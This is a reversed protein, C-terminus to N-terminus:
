GVRRSWVPEVLAWERAWAADVRAATARRVATWAANLLAWSLAVATLAAGVGFAVAEAPDVPPAALLRGGRDTWVDVVAGARLPARLDLEGTREVGDGATWAVPVPVARAPRTPAPQQPVDALLVVRLAPPEVRRAPGLAADHAARGVLLAGVAALLGLSVLVWATVDEIRDTPRAPISPAGIPRRRRHDSMCGTDRRRRM